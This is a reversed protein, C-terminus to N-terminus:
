ALTKRYRLTPLSLGGASHTSRAGDHGGGAAEYFAIARHNGELVWLTAARFRMHRLREEARALLARGFGEGLRNPAVYIAYIEATDEGADEDETPGASVFGVVAGSDEVVLALRLPDRAVTNLRHRWGRERQSGDLADLYDAPMQARYAARWGLVHVAAIAAADAPGADRIHVLDPTPTAARTCSGSSTRM